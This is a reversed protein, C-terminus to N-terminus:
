DNRREKALCGNYYDHLAERLGPIIEYEDYDIDKALKLDIFLELLYEQESSIDSSTFTEELMGAWAILIKLRDSTIATSDIFEELCHYITACDNPHGNKDFQEVLCTNLRPSQWHYDDQISFLKNKFDEPAAGKARELFKEIQKKGKGEDWNQLSAENYDLFRLEPTHLQERIALLMRPCHVHSKDKILSLLVEQEFEWADEENLVDISDVLLIGDQANCTQSIQGLVEAMELIDPYLNIKLRNNAIQVFDAFWGERKTLWEKADLWLAPRKLKTWYAEFHRLLWTKGIGIDGKIAYLPKAKSRETHMWREIEEQIIKREIYLYKQYKTFDIM